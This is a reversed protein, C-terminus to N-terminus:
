RTNPQFYCWFSIPDARPTLVYLVDKKKLTLPGSHLNTPLQPPEVEPDSGLGDGHGHTVQKYPHTVTVKKKVASHFWFLKKM